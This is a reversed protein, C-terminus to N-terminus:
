WILYRNVNITPNMSVKNLKYFREIANSSNGVLFAEYYNDYNYNSKYEPLVFDEPIKYAISSHTNAIKVIKSNSLDILAYGMTSSTGGKLDVNKLQVATTNDICMDIVLKTTDGYEDIYDTLKRGCYEGLVYRGNVNELLRNATGLFILDETYIYCKYNLEPTKILISESLAKAKVENMVQEIAQKYCAIDKIDRKDLICTNIMDNAFTADDFDIKQLDTKDPYVINFVAQVNDATDLGINATIEISNSTNSFSRETSSMPLCAISMKKTTKTDELTKLNIGVNDGEYMYDTVIYKNKNVTKRETKIM